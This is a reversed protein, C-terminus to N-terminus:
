VYKMLIALRLLQEKFLKSIIPYNKIFYNFPNICEGKECFDSYIKTLYICLAYCAGSPGGRVMASYISRLISLEDERIEVALEIGCLAKCNYRLKLESQSSSQEV